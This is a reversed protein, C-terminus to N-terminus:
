SNRARGDGAREAGAAACRWWWAAYALLAALTLSLGPVIAVGAFTAISVSQAGPPSAHLAYALAAPALGCGLLWPMARRARAARPWSAPLARAPTCATWHCLAYALAALGLLTSGHQLVNYGHVAFGFLQGVVVNLARVLALGPQHEHTISDWLVHTLAGLAVAIGAAGPHAPEARHPLRVAIAVPLLDSWAPRLWRQFALFVLVGVPLSFTVVSPLSHTRLRIEALGVFYPFDPAMSGIALASFPAWPLLRRLPLAAAPHALTFPM